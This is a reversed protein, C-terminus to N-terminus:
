LFLFYQKLKQKVEFHICICQTHVSFHAYASAAPYSVTNYYVASIFLLILCVENMKEDPTNSDSASMKGAIHSFCVSVLHM